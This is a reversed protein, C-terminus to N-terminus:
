FTITIVLTLPCCDPSIEVKIKEAPGRGGTNDHLVIKADKVQEATFGNKLLVAKAQDTNKSRVADLLAKKETASAQIRAKAKDATPQLRIVSIESIEKDSKAVPANSPKATSQAWALNGGAAMMTLLALTAVINGSAKTM